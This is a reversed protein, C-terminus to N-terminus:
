SGSEEDFRDAQEQGSQLTTSPEEAIRASRPVLASRAAPMTDFTRRQIEGLESDAGTGIAACTVINTAESQRNDRRAGVPARPGSAISSELDGPM